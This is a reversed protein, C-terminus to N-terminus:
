RMALELQSLRVYENTYESQLVDLCRPRGFNQMTPIVVQHRRALASKVFKKLIKRM